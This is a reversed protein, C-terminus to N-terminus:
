VPSPQLGPIKISERLKRLQWKAWNKIGRDDSDHYHGYLYLIPGISSFKWSSLYLLNFALLFLRVNINFSNRWNIAKVWENSGTPSKQEPLIYLIFIHFLIMNVTNEHSDFTYIDSSTFLLWLVREATRKKIWILDEIGGRLNHALFEIKKDLNELASM